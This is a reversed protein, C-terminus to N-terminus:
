TKVDSEYFAAIAEVLGSVTHREAEVSVPFGHAEIARSTEPGISASATNSSITGERIRGLMRAYGRVTSASTFTVMDIGGAATLDKAATSPDPHLTRYADVCTVNAGRARLMRPLENPAIDARPLLFRKGRLSRGRFAEVLGNSTFAAPVLDPVLGHLGLEHATTEGIAAMKTSGFARADKGLVGLREFCARVGNVSTFVVWDYSGVRRLAADLRRCDRLPAIAITPLEIVDAGLAELQDALAPSQERPRTVAIRKGFLPKCEFWELKGRLSVVDGVVVIVPPQVKEAVARGAAGVLTTQLVTQRPYTAWQICAVPTRPSRGKDLLAKAIAQLNRAGMLFVLTGGGKALAAWNVSSGGKALDESGTIFAVSAALGRHTVPIGAYAPGAVASTVGPVVEFPVGAEVLALAEEGGRGFVFPDGGKLRCVTKGACAKEVLLANIEHQPITHDGSAKGVDILEANPEALHLLRANALRDYVVVQARRLHEAGKLTILGPDGPGAGVLYVTGPPRRPM